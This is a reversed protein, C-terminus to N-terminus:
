KLMFGSQSKSVMAWTPTTFKTESLGCLLVRTLETAAYGTEMEDCLDMWASPPPNHSCRVANVGMEKLKTFQRRLATVNFAAGLAGQDHHQCAGYIKIHRGNLFFGKDNTFVATKFGCHQSTEDLLNGNADLLSTTLTYFYPDSIDWLHPGTVTFEGDGSFEAFVNGDPGTIKHVVSQGTLGSLSVPTGSLSVETSIKIKWQGDLKKEDVPQTTFYIGDSVLHVAPSKILFVDRIIGAGSYWRTNCNQYVAIVLVENTGAQVLKSIDLEFTSYGYKWEGAKKGNVWVASNMYVAEFRLAIYRNLCEDETLTFTKKYFGTSNRYLDKVHYIQWDHPLQVPRYTQESALDLFQDPSFLVPEKGAPGEKFMSKEDLSLEAFLWDDNFLTKM